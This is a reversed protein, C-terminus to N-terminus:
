NCDTQSAVQQTVCQDLSGGCAGCIYREIRGCGKALWLHGAPVPRMATEVCEHGSTDGSSDLPPEWESCEAEETIPDVEIPGDLCALVDRALSRVQERAREAEPSLPPPPQSAGCAGVFLLLLAAPMMM